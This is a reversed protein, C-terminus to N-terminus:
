HTGASSRRVVRHLGSKRATSRLRRVVVSALSDDSLGLNGLTLAEALEAASLPDNTAIQRELVALDAESADDARVHREAIRARLIPHPVRFDLILFPASLQEALRRFMAREAYRLFTADVLVSFGTDLVVRALAELRRYVADSARRTYIGRGLASGSSELVALGHLRKRELDSRLRIAGIREMLPQTATTKGSGSLGHTLILLPTRRSAFREALHLYERFTKTLRRRDGPSLGQQRSRMLHIKARVLARYVLYFRFVAMGAYDGTVELYRNVFRWGLDGRGRDELDMVVFAVESMVDIWRLEESFEICDFPVPRARLLAINGLHLDGHCERVYGRTKRAKMAARLGVFENETWQKLACTSKLDPATMILPLMQDFNQIALCLVSEPTGL